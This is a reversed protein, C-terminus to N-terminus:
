NGRAMPCGGMNLGAISTFVPIHCAWEVFPLEVDCVLIIIIMCDVWQSTMKHM